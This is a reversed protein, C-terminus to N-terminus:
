LIQDKFYAILEINKQLGSEHRLKKLYKEISSRSLSTRIAIEGHDYGHSVLRLVKKQVPTLIISGVPVRVSAPSLVTKTSFYSQGSFVREIALIIEEPGADKTIYAMAGEKMMQSMWVQSQEQTFIVVSKGPYYKKVQRINEEPKSGPIFLDLIFIDFTRPDAIRLAEAVSPASGSIVINKSAKLFIAELGSVVLTTHDEIVFLRIM